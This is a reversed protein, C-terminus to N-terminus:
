EEKKGEEIDGKFDNKKNELAIDQNNFRSDVIEPTIFFVLESNGSNFEKSRFLAGLVPIDGLFPIKSYNKAENNNILGGLVITSKDKVVVFTTISKDTFSPIGDVTNIWDIKTSKTILELDIFSDDILEKAKIQLQLGYKLARIDTVPIGQASTTQLKIYITGGAHFTADKNEVTILSTEDLIRAVGKSSLYNLVLGTRFGNGLYSAAANLGGTLSVANEILSASQPTFGSIKTKQEFLTRKDTEYSTTYNEFGFLWNNKITKGKVNNIEAVYLKVRIMKGPNKIKALDIINKDKDLGIKVFMDIIKDRHKVSDIVGDLVITNKVQRIIVGPSVSKALKIVSDYNKTVYTKIQIRENDYFTIFLSTNGLKKAFIKIAHLSSKNDFTVEINDNNKLKVKFIRKEFEIVKYNGHQIYVSQNGLNLDKYEAKLFSIIIVILLIIKKM